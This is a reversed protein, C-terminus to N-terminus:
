FTYKIDFSVLLSGGLLSGNPMFPTAFFYFIANLGVSFHKLIFFYELGLGLGGGGGIAMTTHAEISKLSSTSAIRDLKDQPISDPPILQLLAELSLFFRFREEQLKLFYWRAGLGAIISVGQRPVGRLTTATPFQTRFTRDPCQSPASYCNTNGTVTGGIKGYLTFSKGLYGGFRLSVLLGPRYIKAGDLVLFTLLGIEADLFFNDAIEKVAQDGAEFPNDNPAAAWAMPSGLLMACALLSFISRKFM